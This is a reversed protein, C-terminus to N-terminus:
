SALRGAGGTTEQARVNRRWNPHPCWVFPPKPRASCRAFTQGLLLCLHGPSFEDGRCRLLVGSTVGMYIDLLWQSVVNALGHGYREAGLSGWCVCILAKM